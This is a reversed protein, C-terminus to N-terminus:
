YSATEHEASGSQKESEQRQDRGTPAVGGAAGSPGLITAVVVWSASMACLMAGPAWTVESSFALVSGCSYSTRGFSTLASAEASM